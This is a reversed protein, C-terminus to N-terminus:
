RIVDTIETRLIRNENHKNASLLDPYRECITNFNKSWATDSIKRYNEVNNMIEPATDFGGYAKSHGANIRNSGWCLDSMYDVHYSGCKWKYNKYARFCLEADDWQFPAFSEDFYELTKIKEADFSIPGRNVVDRIYFYNRSDWLLGGRPTGDESRGTFDKVNCGPPPYINLANRASVLFVDDFAILPAILRKDWGIESVIMDDQVLIYHTSNSSCARMGANNALTEFVNNLKLVKVSKIRYLGWQANFRKNKGNEDFDTWEYSDGYALEVFLTKLKMESGDNCGDLVIILEFENVTYKLIADIVSGLLWSKNHTTVVISIM